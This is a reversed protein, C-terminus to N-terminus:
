SSIAAKYCIDYRSIKNGKVCLAVAATDMDPPWFPQLDIVSVHTTHILKVTVIMAAM